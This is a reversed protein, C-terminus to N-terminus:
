SVDAIQDEIMSHYKDAVNRDTRNYNPSYHQATILDRNGKEAIFLPSVFSVSISAIM